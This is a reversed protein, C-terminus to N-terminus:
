CYQDILLRSELKMKINKPLDCYTLIEKYHKKFYKMIIKFDRLTKTKNFRKILFPLYYDDNENINFDTNNYTSYVFYPYDNIVQIQQILQTNYKNTIKNLWNMQNTAIINMLINRKIEEEIYLNNLLSKYFCFTFQNIATFFSEQELFYYMIPYLFKTNSIHTLLIPYYSPLHLYEFVTKKTNTILKNMISDNLSYRYPMFELNIPKYQYLFEINYNNLLYLKYQKPLYNWFTYAM